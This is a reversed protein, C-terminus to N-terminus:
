ITKIGNFDDHSDFLHTTGNSGWVRTLLIQAVLLEANLDWVVICVRYVAYLFTHIERGAANM